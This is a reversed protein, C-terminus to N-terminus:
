RRWHIDHSLIDVWTRRQYSSGDGVWPPLNFGREDESELLVRGATGDFELIEGPQQLYWIKRGVVTASIAERNSLDVGPLDDLKRVVVAAKTFVSMGLKGFTFRYVQLDNCYIEVLGVWRIAGDKLTNEQQIVIRKLVREGRFPVVTGDHLTARKGDEETVYAYGERTIGSPKVATTAM